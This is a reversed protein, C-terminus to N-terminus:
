AASREEMEDARDEVPQYETSSPGTSSPLPEKQDSMDATQGANKWQEAEQLALEREQLATDRERIITDREQKLTTVHQSLESIAQQALMKELSWAEQSKIDKEKLHGIYTVASALISGKNKDCNPVIKALENIGENITERRRREM